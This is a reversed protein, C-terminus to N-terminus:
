HYQKALTTDIFFHITFQDSCRCSSKTTVWEEYKVHYQMTLGIVAHIPMVRATSASGRKPSLPLPPLMHRLYVGREVDIHVLQLLKALLNTKRM